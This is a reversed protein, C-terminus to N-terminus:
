LQTGVNTLGQLDELMGKQRINQIEIGPRGNVELVLPGQKEDLCIDVGLYGLPIAKQCNIAMECIEPWFPIQLGLVTKDSDPHHSLEQQDVLCSETVGTEINISSGIAGQHLNAKGRSGTTPIRLMAGILKGRCVIIRIDSLGYPAVRQLSEHQVILPEIYAIDSDGTQSFSGSIIESAHQQLEKLTYKQGSFTFFGEETVEKIVLIGNGQSGCNPKIVFSKLDKLVDGLDDLDAYSQFFAITGPIPIDQEKLAEKTALKDAALRMMSTANFRYVYERNRKNIGMVDGKSEKILKRFRFLESIRIGSWQGIYLQAGLVMLLLEPYLAFAGQIVYSNFIFFCGTITVFTGLGISMLDKWSEESALQQIREAIFSIIIVPFLSLAGFELYDQVNSFLLVVILGTTVLTIVAALKPIKLMRYRDFYLHGLFASFVVVLFGLLGIWFGSFVCAAAILMPMFVGFTKVGLVNRAYTILLTCMPFLLFLGATKPTLGADRLLTAINISSLDSSYQSTRFLAPAVRENNVKYQYNFFLDKSHEFLASDGYFLSLYNYPVEAFFKHTPDFPVWHDELYVEVWHHAKNNFGAELIVGGVIRAPINNLRCFAAFLRSKGSSNAQKLRLATLADSEGKQSSKKIEQSSFAYIAELIAHVGASQQPKIQEWATVIETDDKQISPSAILYQQLAEPYSLPVPLEPAIRYHKGKTALLGKYTISTADKGGHWIAKRGQASEHSEFALGSSHIVEQLVEQRDNSRPLFASIVMDDRYSEFKMTLDFSTLNEAQLLNLHNPNAQHHLFFLVLSLVILAVAIPFQRKKTLFALISQSTTTAKDTAM